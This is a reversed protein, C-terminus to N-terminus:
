ELSIKELVTLVERLSSDAGSATLRPFRGGEQILERKRTLRVRRDVVEVLTIKRQAAEIRIKATLLLNETPRPIPGFRDRGRRRGGRPSPPLLDPNARRRHLGGAFLGGSQEQADAEM